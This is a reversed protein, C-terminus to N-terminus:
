KRGDSSTFWSSAECAVHCWNDNHFFESFVNTLVDGWGTSPRGRKRGLKYAFKSEWKTFLNWSVSKAPSGEPSRAIQHALQFKLRFLRDDWGEMPFLTKAHSENARYHGAM